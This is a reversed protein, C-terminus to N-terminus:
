TTKQPGLYLSYSSCRARKRVRWPPRGHSRPFNSYVVQTQLTQVMAIAPPARALIRPPTEWFGPMGLGLKSIRGALWLAADWEKVIMLQIECHSQAM